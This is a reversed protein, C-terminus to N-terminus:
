SFLYLYNKIKRNQYIGAETEIKIFHQQPHMRNSFYQDIAEPYKKKAQLIDNNIFTQYKIIGNHLDDEKNTIHTFSIIQISTIARNIKASLADIRKQDNVLSSWVAEKSIDHCYWTKLEIILLPEAINNNIELVAIDFRHNDTIGVSKPHVYERAIIWDAYKKQLSIALKDRLYSESKSTAYIYALENFSETRNSNIEEMIDLLTKQIEKMGIASM